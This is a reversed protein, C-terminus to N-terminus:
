TLLAVLYRCIILQSGYRSLAKYDRKYRAEIQSWITLFDLDPLVNHLFVHPDPPYDLGKPPLVKVTLHIKSPGTAMM